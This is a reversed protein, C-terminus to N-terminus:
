VLVTDLDNIQRLARGQGRSVTTVPEDPESTNQNLNILQILRAECIRSPSRIQEVPPM